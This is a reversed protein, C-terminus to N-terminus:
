IQCKALYKQLQDFVDSRELHIFERATNILYKRDFKQHYKQILLEVDAYDIPRASVLKFIILDEVSCIQIEIDGFKVRKGRRVAQREFGGLGASIDIRIETDLPDSYVPEFQQLLKEGVKSINQLDLCLSLDIDKTTRYELHHIIAVGGIIVYELQNQCCVTDIKHLTREFATLNLENV